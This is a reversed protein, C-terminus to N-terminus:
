IIGKLINMLEKIHYKINEKINDQININNDLIKIGGKVILELSKYKKTM